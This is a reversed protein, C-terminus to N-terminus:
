VTTLLNANQNSQSKHKTLVDRVSNKNGSAEGDFNTVIIHSDNDIMDNSGRMATINM